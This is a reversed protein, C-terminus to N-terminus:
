PLRSMRSRAIIHVRVLPGTRPVSSDLCRRCSPYSRRIGIEGVVPTLEAAPPRDGGLAGGAAGAAGRMSPSCRALRITESLPM